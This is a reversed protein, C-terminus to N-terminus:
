EMFYGAIYPWALPMGHLGEKFVSTAIAIDIGAQLLLL